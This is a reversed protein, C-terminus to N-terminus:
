KKLWRMDPYPIPEKAKLFYRLFIEAYGRMLYGNNRKILSSKEDRYFAPLKYWALTPKEHHAVHLNNNLFLLSWFHSAEVIITRHEVSEAAQHECYSRILALSVGPYAILLIYKWLPMGSWLVITVVCACSTVFIIWAKAKERDGRFCDGLDSSWFRAVSVAPGLFMRGALTQNWAFLTRKLGPM